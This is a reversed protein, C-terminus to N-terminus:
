ASATIQGIQKFKKSQQLYKTWSQLFPSLFFFMGSILVVLLSEVQNLFLLWYLRNM